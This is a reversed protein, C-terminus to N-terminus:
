QLYFRIFMDPSFLNANTYYRKPSSVINIGYLESKREEIQAVSEEKIDKAVVASNLLSYANVNGEYKIEIM